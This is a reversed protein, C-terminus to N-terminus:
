GFTYQLSPYDYATGGSQYATYNTSDVGSLVFSSPTASAVTFLNQGSFNLETMGVIGEIYIKDGNQFANNATVTCTTGQSIASIQATTADGWNFRYDRSPVGQSNIPWLIATVLGNADYLIRRLQWKQETPTQAIECRAILQVTGAANIARFAVESDQTIFVSRDSYGLKKPRFPDNMSIHTTM